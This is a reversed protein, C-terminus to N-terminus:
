FDNRVQFAVPCNLVGGKLYGRIVYMEEASFSGAISLKGGTIESNVMPNMLIKGDCVFPLCRGVNNRTLDAWAQHFEPYLEIMLQPFLYGRMSEFKVKKVPKKNLPFSNTKKVTILEYYSNNSQSEKRWLFSVDTPLLDLITENQFLSDIFEKDEERAMGVVPSDSSVMQRSSIIFDVLPNDTDETEKTTDFSKLILDSIEAAVYSEYIVIEGKERLLEPIIDPKKEPFYTVSFGGNEPMTFDKVKYFSKIREIIVRHAEEQQQPSCDETFHVQIAAPKQFM